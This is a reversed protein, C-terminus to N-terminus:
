GGAQPKREALAVVENRRASLFPPWVQNRGNRKAAYLAADAGAIIEAASLGNGLRAAAAGASITVIGAKQLSPHPIGALEVARRIREALTVADPLATGPLLVLFEEGGFRFVMEAREALETRMLGALRKLCADGAQHGASDNYLKFHDVDFLLVALEESGGSAELGALTTDLLRRNALGTLPDHRSLDTLETNLLRQRLMVLYSLRSERELSYGAILAMVSAGIVIMNSLLELEGPYDSMSRLMAEHLGVCILCTLVAYPFRTRQVVTGFLVVLIVSYHEAQRFQATSVLMLILTAATAASAALVTLGERIWVRPRVLQAVMIMALGM